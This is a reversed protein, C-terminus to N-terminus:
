RRGGKGKGKGPRPRDMRGDGNMDRQNDTMERKMHRKQVERQHQLRKQEQPTVTGDARAKEEMREIKDQGKQLRAAEQETLQGSQTGQHIRQQMRDQRLQPGGAPPDALSPAALLTLLLAPFALTRKM